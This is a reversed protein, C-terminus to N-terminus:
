VGNVRPWRCMTLSAMYMTVSEVESSSSSRGVRDGMGFVHGATSSCPLADGTGSGDGRLSGHRTDWATIGSSSFHSGNFANYQGVSSVPLFCAHVISYNVTVPLICTTFSPLKSTIVIIEFIVLKFAQIKFRIILNVKEGILSYWKWQQGNSTTVGKLSCPGMLVDLGM